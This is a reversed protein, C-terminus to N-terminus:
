RVAVPTVGRAADTFGRRRELRRAFRLGAEELPWLHLWGAARSGALALGLALRHGPPRGSLPMAKPVLTWGLEAELRPYARRLHWRDSGQRYADLLFAPVPRRYRHEALLSPEFVARVGAERLRLGFDEDEHYAIAAHPSPLPTLLCRERRLSVNGAWFRLLVDGTARRWADCCDEYERAYICTAADGARRPEPRRVPMYGIVVIETGAAVHRDRHGTVLGPAGVVDDDIFLVLDGTAEGVGAQRAAAAGVGERRVVRLRPERCGLQALVEPTADTSGDDVVVLERTARDALLPELVDLVHEARNRTPVVVSV